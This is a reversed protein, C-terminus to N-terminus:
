QVLQMSESSGSREEELNTPNEFQRPTVDELVSEKLVTYAELGGKISKGKYKEQTCIPEDDLFSCKLTYSKENIVVKIGSVRAKYTLM